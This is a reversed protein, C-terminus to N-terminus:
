YSISVKITDTYTAPPVDQGAGIKVTATTSLDNGTGQAGSLGKGTLSANAVSLSYDLKNNGNKLEGSTASGKGTALVITGVTGKTCRFTISTTDSKEETGNYGVVNSPNEYVTPKTCSKAVTATVNLNTTDTSTTSTTFSIYSDEAAMAPAVASLTATCAIATLLLFKKM